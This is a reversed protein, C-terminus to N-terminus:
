PTWSHKRYLEIEAPSKVRRSWVETHEQSVTEHDSVHLCVVAQEVRYRTKRVNQEKSCIIVHERSNMLKVM